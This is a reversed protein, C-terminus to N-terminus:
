GSSWLQQLWLSSVSVANQKKVCLEEQETLGPFRRAKVTTETANNFSCHKQEPITQAPVTLIYLFLISKCNTGFRTITLRIASM